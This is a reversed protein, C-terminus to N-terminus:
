ASIIDWDAPMVADTDIVKGDWHGIFEYDGDMVDGRINIGYTVDDIDRPEFDKLQELSYAPKAAVKKPAAKKPAPKAAVPEPVAAVPAPAAPAAAEKAAKTAARKAATAAKQEDTRPAPKKREKKETSGTADSAEGSVSGSESKAKPEPPEWTSYADLIEADTWEDDPHEIVLRLVADSGNATFRVPASQQTALGAEALAELAVVENLATATNNSRVVFDTRGQHDQDEVFKDLRIM